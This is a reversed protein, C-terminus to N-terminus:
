IDSNEDLYMINKISYKKRILDLSNKDKGIAGIIDVNEKLLAPIHRSITINGGLSM